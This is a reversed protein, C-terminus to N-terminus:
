GPMGSPTQIVSAEAGAVLKLCEVDPLRLLGEILEALRQHGDRLFNTDIKALGHDLRNVVQNLALVARRSPVALYRGGPWRLRDHVVRDGAKSVVTQQARGM